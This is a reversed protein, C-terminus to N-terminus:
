AQEAEAKHRRGERQENNESAGVLLLAIILAGKVV